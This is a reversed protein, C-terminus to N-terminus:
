HDISPMAGQMALSNIFMSDYSWVDEDKSYSEAALFAINFWPDIWHLALQNNRKREDNMSSLLALGIAESQARHDFNENVLLAKM